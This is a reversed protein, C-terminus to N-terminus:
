EGLLNKGVSILRKGVAAKVGIMVVVHVTRAELDAALVDGSARLAAPLEHQPHSVVRKQLARRPALAEPSVTRNPCGALLSSKFALSNGVLM